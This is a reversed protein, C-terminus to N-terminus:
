VRDDVHDIREPVAVDVDAHLVPEELSRGERFRNVTSGGPSLSHGGMLTTLTKKWGMLARSMWRNGPRTDGRRSRRSAISSVVPLTRAESGGAPTVVCNWSSNM